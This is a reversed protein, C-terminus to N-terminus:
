SRWATSYLSDGGGLWHWLEETLRGNNDMRPVKHQGGLQGRSRMWEAFGGRRVQIVEPGDMCLAGARHARYDENFRCLAMDLETAFKELDGPPEMFEILYRHHGATGPSSPFVPGVHFDVILAGTVAAAHAVAQEIEKGSLHEGVASLPQQTRGTVRLL